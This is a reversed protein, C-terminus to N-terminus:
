KGSYQSLRELYVWFKSILNWFFFNRKMREGVWFKRFTQDFPFRGKVSSSTEITLVAKRRYRYHCWKLELKLKKMLLSLLSNWNLSSAYTRFAFEMGLRIVKGLAKWLASILPGPTMRPLLAPNASKQRWNRARLRPMPSSKCKRPLICPFLCASNTVDGGDQFHSM